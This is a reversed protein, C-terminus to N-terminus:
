ATGGTHARHRAWELLRAGFRPHGAAFRAHLQQMHEIDGRSWCGFLLTLLAYLLGLLAGGLPM